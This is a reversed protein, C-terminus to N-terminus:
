KGRRRLLATLLRIAGHGLLGAITLGALGLVAWDLYYNRTAGIVYSNSLIISNAFGLKEQENQALHRYLRTKLATARTHCTVCDREAKDKNVIEHSQVKTVPSHCEICRVAGWHLRTNPLWKHIRDLDPRKKDPPAMTRYREESEHCDLCMANDQAVIAKPSSIKAAVNFLHPDHCSKCTFKDALNKAHVSSHYQAEIRMVKVAHCEECPSIKARAGEAHPFANYSAGHCTKCEMKGHGSLKFGSEELLLGGLKVMDMDARVPHTVGQETHCAYCEANSRRIKELLEPDIAVPASQAYATAGFVLIAMMALVARRLFDTALAM